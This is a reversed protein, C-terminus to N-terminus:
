FQVNEDDNCINKLLQPLVLFFFFFFFFLKFALLWGVPITKVHQRANRRVAGKMEARAMHVPM